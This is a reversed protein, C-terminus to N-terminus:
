GAEVPEAGGGGAPRGHRLWLASVAGVLAAAGTILFINAYAQAQVELHLQRWLPILGAPGQHSMALIRPAANAGTGHPLASREALQQAQQNTAMATLAALGLASAVRQFLTNFTSGAGIVSPPLSSIGSTMIPMMALGIGASRIMMWGALEPRPLDANLGTLLLTGVGNLTLGVVAPWRGGFRDYIRGAVPMMVVTVVAQPLVVLGTHWATLGLGQQLFVPVYFFGAFLGVFLISILFLSNLFPWHRLARVDLLPQEVHLEIVAFLALLSVSGALLMLVPYSTWGWDQGESVALLVAFLGAAICLFGLVDFRRGPAGPFRPLVAMAAIAGLVGVPVNIFFILRWNVYEVLYGGLTPGVGPAVVIGLGYMGMAIGLKAPPVMRYLITMCTVPIVGAPLAQLVRFAIMSPLDGAIGCLGSFISFGILSILYLRRLGLREGLYASTPVIIGLCLTYATAVWEIDELSAGYEKQMAPIAVNVISTDLVSMFMGVVVVALPLGWGAGAAPAAPAPSAPPEPARRHVPAPARTRATAPEPRTGTREPHPGAPEDLVVLGGAPEETRSANTV